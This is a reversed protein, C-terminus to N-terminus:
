VVLPRTEGVMPCWLWAKFIRKIPGSKAGTKVWPNQPLGQFFLLVVV